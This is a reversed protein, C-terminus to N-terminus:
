ALWVVRVRDAAVPRLQCQAPPRAISYLQVLAIQCGRAIMDYLQDSLADLVDRVDCGAVGEFLMSQIVIPRRRGYAVIQRILRDYSFASRDIANFHESTGADMKVWVQDMARDLRDLASVIEPRDLTTGNTMVVIPVDPVHRDRCAIVVGLAREFQPCMTPEGDGSLVIDALHRWRASVDRFRVDHWIEGSEAVRLMRQLEVELRDVEIERRASSARRDVQCYVCDFNCAKDLNLNVGISLGGSRRSIVPYVYTDDRWTRPHDTLAGRTGADISETHFSESAM